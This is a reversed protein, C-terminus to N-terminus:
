KYDGSKIELEEEKKGDRWLRVKNTEESLTLVSIVSNHLSFSAAAKHRTGCGDPLDLTPHDVTLYIGAGIIQGAKNVVVAGDYPHRSFTEIVEEAEDTNIIIPSTIPNQKPKMQVLGRVGQYDQPFDGFVVIAGVNQASSNHDVAKSAINKLVNFIRRETALCLQLDLDVSPAKKNHNKECIKM